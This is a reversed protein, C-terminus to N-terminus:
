RGNDKRKDVKTIKYESNQTRKFIQIGDTLHKEGGLISNCFISIM